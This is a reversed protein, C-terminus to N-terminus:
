HTAAEIMRAVTKLTKAYNPDTAYGAAAIADIFQDTDSKVLLAKAYRKNRFFFDAHDTFCEEPTKYARFYDKVTYKYLKKAADWVISIVQPFKAKNTALYETTTLLQENGNVGDFDKIGFFNNGPASKGWASECAAQTLIAVASIGKKQQTQLAFVYYKDVFTKVTPNVKSM